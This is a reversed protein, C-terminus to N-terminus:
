IYQDDLLWDIWLINKLWPYMVENMPWPIEQLLIDSADEDVMITWGSEEKIIWGPRQLILERIDNITCKSFIDMSSLSDMLWQLTDEVMEQSPYLEPPVVEDIEVGCLLKSLSTRWDAIIDEDNWVLKDLLCVAQLQTSPSVFEQKKLLNFRTFLGPLLPWLILLGANYAPLREPTLFPIINNEVPKYDETYKKAPITNLKKFIKKAEESLLYEVNEVKNITSFLFRIWPYLEQKDFFGSILLYELWQVIDPETDIFSIKKIDITQLLNENYKFRFLLASVVLYFQWNKTTLKPASLFSKVGLFLRVIKQLTDPAFINILRELAKMSLCCDALASQWHSVSDKIYSHGLYASSDKTHSSESYVPSHEFNISLTDLYPKLWQDIFRGTVLWLPQVLYGNHLYNIFVQWEDERSSKTLHKDEIQRGASTDSNKDTDIGTNKQSHMTLSTNFDAYSNTEMEILTDTGVNNNLINKNDVTYKKISDDNTSKGRNFEIVNSDTNISATTKEHFQNLKLNLERIISHILMSEFNLLSITGVNIIIKDIKIDSSLTSSYDALLQDITLEIRNRFCNSCRMQVLPADKIGVSLIFRVTDIKNTHSRTKELM